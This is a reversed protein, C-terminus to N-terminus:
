PSHQGEYGAWVQRQVPVRVVALSLVTEGGASGIGIVVEEAVHALFEAVGVGGEDDGGGGGDGDDGGDGDGGGGDGLVVASGGFIELSPNQQEMEPQFM